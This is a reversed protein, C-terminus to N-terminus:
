LRLIKNSVLRDLRQRSQRDCLAHNQYCSDSVCHVKRLMKLLAKRSNLIEPHRNLKQAVEWAKDPNLSGGSSVEEFQLKGDWDSRIKVGLLIALKIQYPTLNEFHKAIIAATATVRPAAFSAGYNWHDGGPNLGDAVLDAVEAGWTAVSKNIRGDSYGPAVLILQDLVQNGPCSYSRQRDIQEAENGSGVVWLLGSNEITNRLKLKACSDRDYAFGASLNVVKVRQSRVSNVWLEPKELCDLTGIPVIKEGGAELYAQSVLRAHDSDGGSLLTGPTLFSQMDTGSWYSPFLSNFTRRSDPSRVWGYFSERYHPGFLIAANLNKNMLNIEPIRTTAFGQECIVARVSRQNYPLDFKRPRISNKLFLPNEKISSSDPISVSRGARNYIQFRRTVKFGDQLGTFQYVFLFSLDDIPTLFIQAATKGEQDLIQIWNQFSAGSLYTKTWRASYGTGSIPLERVFSCFEACGFKSHPEYKEDLHNENVLDREVYSKVWDIVFAIAGSLEPHRNSLDANIEVEDPLSDPVGRMSAILRDFKPEVIVRREIGFKQSIHAVTHPLGVYESPEFHGMKLFEDLEDELSRGLIFDSYRSEEAPDIPFAGYWFTYINQRLNPVALRWSQIQTKIDEFLPYGAVTFGVKRKYNVLNLASSEDRSNRFAISKCGAEPIGSELNVRFVFFQFSPCLCIHRGLQYEGGVQTCAKELWADPSDLDRTPAEVVSLLDTDAENRAISPRSNAQYGCSFFVFSIWFFHFLRMRKESGMLNSGLVEACGARSDFESM